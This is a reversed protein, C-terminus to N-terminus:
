LPIKDSLDCLNKVKLDVNEDDASMYEQEGIM